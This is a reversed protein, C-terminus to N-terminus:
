LSVDPGQSACTLHGCEMRKGMLADTGVGEGMEKAWRRGEVRSYDWLGWTRCDV